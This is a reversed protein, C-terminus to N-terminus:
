DEDPELLDALHEALREALQDVAVASAQTAHPGTTAPLLALLDM